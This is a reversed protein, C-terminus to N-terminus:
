LKQIFTNETNYQSPMYLQAKIEIDEYEAEYYQLSNFDQRQMKKNAPASIAIQGKLQIEYLNDDKKIFNMNHHSSVSFDHYVLVWAQYPAVNRIWVNPRKDSLVLELSPPNDDAGEYVNSWYTEVFDRAKEYSNWGGLSVADQFNRNSIPNWYSETKFYDGSGNDLYYEIRNDFGILGYGCPLFNEPSIGEVIPVPYELNALGYGTGDNGIFEWVHNTTTYYCGGAYHYTATTPTYIYCGVPQPALPTAWNAGSFIDCEDEIMQVITRYTIGYWMYGQIRIEEDTVYMFNGATILKTDSEPTTKILIKPELFQLDDENANFTVTFNYDLTQAMEMGKFPVTTKYNSTTNASLISWDSEWVLKNVDTFSPLHLVSYNKNNKQKINNINEKEKQDLYDIKYKKPKFQM